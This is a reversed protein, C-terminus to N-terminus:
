WARSVCASSVCSVCARRSFCCHHMRLFYLPRSAPHSWFPTCLNARMHASLNPDREHKHASQRRLQLVPLLPPAPPQLLPPANALRPLVCPPWCAASPPRPIRLLAASLAQRVCEAAAAASLSRQSASPLLPISTALHAQQTFLRSSRRPNRVQWDTPIHVTARQTYEAAAQPACPRMKDLSSGRHVWAFLAHWLLAKSTPNVVLCLLSGSCLLAGSQQEVPFVVCLAYCPAPLPVVAAM